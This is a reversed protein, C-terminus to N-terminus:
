DSQGEVGCLKIRKQQPQGDVVTTVLTEFKHADCNQIIQTTTSRTTKPAVSIKRPAATGAYGQALLVPLLIAFKRRMQGRSQFQRPSHGKFQDFRLPGSVFVLPSIGVAM